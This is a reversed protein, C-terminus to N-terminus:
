PLSMPNLPGLRLISADNISPFPPSYFSLVGHRETFVPIIAAHCIFSLETIKLVKRKHFVILALSLALRSAPRPLSRSVFSSLFAEPEM